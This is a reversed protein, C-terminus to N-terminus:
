RPCPLRLDLRGPDRAPRLPGHGRVAGRRRHGGAGRRRPHLLRPQWPHRLLAGGVVPQARGAGHPNRAINHVGITALALFWVVIVPGFAKGVRDTGFRQSAFLVLLVLITVPLVFRELAPAAVQLGEVASLVSIAPTLVGDGFFLAAGFVGLLGAVYFATSAPPLSRQALATM